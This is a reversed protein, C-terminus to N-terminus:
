DDRRRMAPESTNSNAQSQMAQSRLGQILNGVGNDLAFGQTGAEDCTEWDNAGLVRSSKWLRMSCNATASGMGRIDFAIMQVGPKAEAAARLKLQFTGRTQSHEIEKGDPRSRFIPIM